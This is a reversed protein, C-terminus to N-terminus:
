SSKALAAPVTHTRRRIALMALVLGAALAAVGVVGVSNMFAGTWLGLVSTLLPSFFSGVYFCASWIGTGRGRSSADFQGLTWWLVVPFSFGGAFQGIADFVTGIRYDPSWYLGIYSVGFVLYVVALMETVNRLKTQKFAYGGVITGLSALMVFISIRAPSSLGLAAFIRGHQVNQLFFLQATAFTTCGVVLAKRWPFQSRGAALGSERQLAKVPEWIVQAACVLAVGGAVAYILFPLRWSIAGLAGGLLLVISGLTPGAIAQYSLWRKRADGSFYDGMLANGCTPIVAEALGVAFRCLLILYLNELLLPALGLVAFVGLAVLLMPRRGWRDAAAGAVSAFLGICLTPVTLIMPVLIEHGPIDRYHELMRPLSSVLSAMALITMTNVLILVMGQRPGPLRPATAAVAGTPASM